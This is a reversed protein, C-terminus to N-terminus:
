SHSYTIYQMEDSNLYDLVTKVSEDISCMDSYSITKKVEEPQSDYLERTKGLLDTFTLKM